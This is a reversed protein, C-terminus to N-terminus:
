RWGFVLLEGEYERHLERNDFDPSVVPHAAKSDSIDDGREPCIVTGDPNRAPERVVTPPVIGCRGLGGRGDHSM